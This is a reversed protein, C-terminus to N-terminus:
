RHILENIVRKRRSFEAKAAQVEVRTRARVEARSQASKAFTRSMSWPPIRGVLLAGIDASSVRAAKLSARIQQDTMGLKRAGNVLKIMDKYSKNRSNIMKQVASNLEKDTVRDQGGVVKSLLRTAKAKDDKFQYGKYIMGTPLDLTGFRLGIWAISEDFKSYPKGSPARADNLALTTREVNNVVGPQTARRLHNLVSLTWEPDQENYVPGGRLKKNVVVEVLAQAAIDPGVFPDLFELAADKFKEMATENNSNLLASLWLKDYTYPDLYSLDLYRMNGNEDYGTYLLQSNRSWPPLQAKVAEDDDDTIGFLYMSYISAAYAGSIAMSAGIVRRAAGELNGEKIDEAIFTVQNRTTRLIEYPFSVFSGILPARRLWKIGKPVMSYTPYGNRIRVAAVKEAEFEDKGHRKQIAKENEFGIIKWFDDGFRYAKQIFNLFQRPHQKWGKTYIDAETFDRIADRLEGAYANDHLVGIRVLHNIYARWKTETDFLDSMSARMSKAAHLWNFHGNMITFGSASIFNRAQTTPSGITKGYKVASNMAILTRLFDSGEFKNLADQLGLKFDSSTYLGGLPNMPESDRSAVEADFAIGGVVDPKDFLWSDMGEQRMRMLFNHNAIFWQMKTASRVFNVRPDKYEGLLERIVDPVDKRRRRDRICM